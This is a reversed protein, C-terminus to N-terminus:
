SACGKGIYDRYLVYYGYSLGAARAQRVTEAITDHKDSKKKRSRKFSACEDSCYRRKVEGFKQVFEKGCRPCITHRDMGHVIHKVRYESVDLNKMIDTIMDGREYCRKVEAILEASIPTKTKM